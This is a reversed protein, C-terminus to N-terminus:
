LPRRFITLQTSHTLARPPQNKNTGEESYDALRM